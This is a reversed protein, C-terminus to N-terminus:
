LLCFWAQASHVQYRGHIYLENVGRQGREASKSLKANEMLIKWICFGSM